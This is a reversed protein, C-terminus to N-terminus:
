LSIYHVENFIYISLFAFRANDLSILLNRHALTQSSEDNSRISSNLAGIYRLIDSRMLLDDLIDESMSKNGIARKVVDALLPKATKRIGAAQKFFKDSTRHDGADLRHLNFIFFDERKENICNSQHFIFDNYQYMAYIHIYGNNAGDPATIAM